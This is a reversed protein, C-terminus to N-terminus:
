EKVFKRRVITPSGVSGDTLLEAFYLGSPLKSVDITESQDNQVQKLIEGGLVNYIHIEKIILKGNDIILQSACPNPYLTIENNTANEKVGECYGSRWRINDIIWGEKNTNISDSKFTFRIIASAPIHTVGGSCWNLYFLCNRWGNSSGTFGHTGDYLNGSYNYVWPTFADVNTWSSGSDISFEIYGGDYLTDTDYKHMFNIETAQNQWNHFGFMLFASDYLTFQFSSTNNAPYYNLTDTVMANPRTYASDFLIKHPTGIQWLNNPQTTDLGILVNTSSEFNVTDPYEYQGVADGMLFVFLLLPLIKRM